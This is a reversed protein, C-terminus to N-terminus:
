SRTKDTVSREYRKEKSLSLNDEDLPSAQSLRDHGLNKTPVWDPNSEQFLPCPKESIFHQSCERKYEINKLTFSKLNLNALWQRQRKETLKKTEVDHHEIVTVKEDGM